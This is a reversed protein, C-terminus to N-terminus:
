RGARTRGKKKPCLYPLALKLKPVLHILCLGTLRDDNQALEMIRICKLFPIPRRGANWHSINSPITELADALDAPIPIPLSKMFGYDVM